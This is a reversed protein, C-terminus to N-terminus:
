VDGQKGALAHKCWMSHPIYLLVTKPSDLPTFRSFHKTTCQQLFGGKSQVNSEDLSRM